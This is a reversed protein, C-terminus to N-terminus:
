FRTGVVVPIFETPLNRTFVRHYRVEVFFHGQGLPMEWGLGADVGGRTTRLTESPSWGAQVGAWSEDGPLPARSPEFLDLRRNYIGVGGLVYPGSEGAGHLRLIGNIPLSLINVLGDRAPGIVNRLRDSMGFRHIGLETHIGVRDSFWYVGGLAFSWGAELRSDSPGVPFAGGLSGQTVEMGQGRVFCATVMALAMFVGRM